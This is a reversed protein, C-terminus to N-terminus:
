GGSVEGVCLKVPVALHKMGTDATIINLLPAAKVVRQMHQKVARQFVTFYLKLNSNRLCVVIGPIIEGGCHM